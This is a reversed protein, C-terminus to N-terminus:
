LLASLIPRIFEVVKIGVFCGFETFYGLAFYVAMVRNKLIM